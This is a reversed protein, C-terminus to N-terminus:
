APGGAARLRGGTLRFFAHARAVIAALLEPGAAWLWAAYRELPDGAQEGPPAAGPAGAAAGVAAAGGAGPLWGGALRDAVRRWFLIVSNIVDPEEVRLVVSLAGGCAGWAGAGGHAGFSAGCATGHAAAPVARPRSARALRPAADRAGAAGGASL